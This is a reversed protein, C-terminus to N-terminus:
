PAFAALVEPAAFALSRDTAPHVHEGVIWNYATRRSVCAVSALTEVFRTRRM